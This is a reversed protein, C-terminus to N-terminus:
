DEEQHQFGEPKGEKVTKMIEYIQTRKLAM